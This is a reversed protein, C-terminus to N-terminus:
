WCYVRREVLVCTRDGGARAHSVSLDSHAPLPTRSCAFPQYRQDRCTDASTTGLQGVTNSGWCWVTGTATVGCSHDSGATVEVFANAALVRMPKTACPYSNYQDGCTETTWAGVQGSTNNGWCYAAGDVALACTHLAGATVAKFTLGGSVARPLPSCPHAPPCTASSDIGLQGVENLGWCYIIGSTGLGCSHWEGVSINRFRIGGQVPSPTTSAQPHRGDGLEGFANSEGWCYGQEDTGVACRHYEGVSVGTFGTPGSVAVAVGPVYQYYTYTFGFPWCYLEHGVTVGCGTLVGSSATAFRVGGPVPWVRGGSVDDSGAGVLPFHLSNWCSAVGASDLGCAFMGGSLSDLLHAVAFGAGGHVRDGVSAGIAFPGVGVVQVVGTSDVTAVEPSSSRWIFPVDNVVAGEPSLAVATLRLTAGPLLTDGAPTIRVRDIRPIVNVTATATVSQAKATVTAKGRAVAVFSGTDAVALVRRDSTAWTVLRAPLPNGSSDSPIAFFRGSDGVFLTSSHTILLLGTVTPGTPGVSEGCTALVLSFCGCGITRLLGRM